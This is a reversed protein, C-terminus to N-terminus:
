LSFRVCFVILHQRDKVLCKLRLLHVMDLAHSRLTLPSFAAGRELTNRYDGSGAGRGEAGREARNWRKEAVGAWREEWTEVRNEDRQAVRETGVIFNLDLVL